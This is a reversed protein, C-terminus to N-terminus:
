LAPTAETNIIEPVETIKPFVHKDLHECIEQLAEESIGALWDEFGCIGQGTNLSAMSCNSPPRVAGPQEEEAGTNAEGSPLSPSKRDVASSLVGDPLNKGVDRIVTGLLRRMSEQDEAGAVFSQLRSRSHCVGSSDFSAVSEAGLVPRCASSESMRDRKSGVVAQTSIEGIIANMLSDAMEHSVKMQAVAERVERRQQRPPPTEPCEVSVRGETTASWDNGSGEMLPEQSGRSADQEETHGSSHHQGLSEMDAGSTTDGTSMGTSPRDLLRNGPPVRELNEQMACQLKGPKGIEEM